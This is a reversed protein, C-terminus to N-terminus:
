TDCIRTDRSPLVMSPLLMMPMRSSAAPAPVVMMIEASPGSSASAASASHRSTSFANPSSGHFAQGADADRGADHEAARDDERLAGLHHAKRNRGLADLPFDRRQVLGLGVRALLQLVDAAPQVLAAAGLQRRQEVRLQQHEVVRHQDPAGLRDDAVLADVGGPRHMAGVLLQVVDEHRHLIGYRRSRSFSTASTAPRRRSLRRCPAFPGFSSSLWISPGDTSIASSSVAETAACSSQVRTCANAVSAPLRVYWVAIRARESFTGAITPRCSADILIAAPM